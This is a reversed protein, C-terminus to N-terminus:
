RKAEETKELAYEFIMALDSTSAEAKSEPQKTDKSFTKM